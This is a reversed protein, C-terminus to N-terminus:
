RWLGRREMVRRLLAPEDTMIGDVGLDLLREMEDAENITWVHVQIGLHHSKHLFRPTVLPLGKIKTPVQACQSSFRGGPLGISASRLRAVGKSGLSTAVGPLLEQMTTIRRDVFSALCVRDQAGADAVVRTLPEVVADHKADINWFVDPWAALLEDLRPVAATGGVTAQAVASWALEDIRGQADTVRDLVDDHFAVVVGDSTLHADTELYRYGLSVADGFAAMTNEPHTSTGGRHAFALVGDHDFFRSRIM